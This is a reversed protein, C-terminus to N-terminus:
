LKLHPKKEVFIEYLWSFVDHPWTPTTEWVPQSLYDDVLNPNSDVYTIYDVAQQLNPFDSVNIFARPNFDKVADSGGMYIPISGAALPELLKETVYGPSISSEWAITFRYEQLEVTKDALLRGTNNFLQGTSDVRQKQNLALFFEVRSKVPNRYTFNCFSSKRIPEQKHRNLINYVHLPHQTVQTVDWDIYLPWLPLRKYKVDPHHHFGLTLDCPGPADQVEGSYAISIPDSYYEGPQPGGGLSYIVVDPAHNDIVVTYHQELCGRFFDRPQLQDPNHDPWMNKYALRLCPKM